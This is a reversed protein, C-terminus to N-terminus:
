TLAMQSSSVLNTRTVDILMGILVRSTGAPLILRLLGEVGSVM